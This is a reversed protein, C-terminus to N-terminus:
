FILMHFGSMKVKSSCQSEKVPLFNKVIKVVMGRKKEKKKKKKEM